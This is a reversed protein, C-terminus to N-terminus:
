GGGGGEGNEEGEVCPLAAMERKAGEEDEGQGREGGDGDDDSREGAGKM